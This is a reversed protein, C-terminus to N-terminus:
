IVSPLAEYSRTSSSARNSRSPNLNVLPTYEPDTYDSIMVSPASSRDRFKFSNKVKLLAQYLHDSVDNREDSMDLTRVFALCCSENNESDPDVYPKHSYAFHHAVSAFLMEICILFDQLKRAVAIDSTLEPFLSDMITKFYELEILGSIVVSQFFSFFVVLKICLFKPLPSMPQLDRKYGTYFIVLCYMATIQSINNVLLLYPYTNFAFPNYNGEGYIGIFQSIVALFTTMPRIVTYQLIGHRCRILFLRGGPCPKLFCLPFLHKVGPKFDIYNQLSTDYHLYNLLYKMFSYIVFAEYCERMIDLYVGLVPITMAVWANLSYIPVMWLIRVIYKQLYPKNFYILHNTIEWFSSLLALVVFVAAVSSWSDM